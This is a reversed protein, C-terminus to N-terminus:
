PRRSDRSPPPNQHQLGAAFVTLADDHPDYSLGTLEIWNAAVQDGLGLGTVEIKVSEAGLKKSVHDFYAQWRPRALQKLAM